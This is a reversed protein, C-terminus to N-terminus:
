RVISKCLCLCAIMVDFMIFPGTDTEIEGWWLMRREAVQRVLCRTVEVRHVM